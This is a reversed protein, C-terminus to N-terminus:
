EKEETILQITQDGRQIKFEVQTDKQLQSIVRHYDENSQIKEQNLALIIDGNKLGILDGKGEKKVFQIRVGNAQRTSKTLIDFSDAKLTPIDASYLFPEDGTITYKVVKAQRTLTIDITTEVENRQYTLKVQENPAHEGLSEILGEMDIVKQGNLSLIMDGTKLGAAEAPSNETFSEIVVGGSAANKVHAGLYGRNDALIEGDDLVILMEQNLLMNDEPKVFKLKQYADKLEIDETSQNAQANVSLFSLPSALFLM